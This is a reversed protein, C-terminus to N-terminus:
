RCNGHSLMLTLAVMDVLNFFAAIPWRRTASKVSYGRLMQDATDVGSKERNYYLVVKPKRKSDNLSINPQRHQTTLLYVNKNRKVKYAVLMAKETFLFDSDYLGKTNEKAKMEDPIEWRNVRM